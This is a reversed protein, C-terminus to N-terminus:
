KGTKFAPFGTIERGTILTNIDYTGEFTHVAEMDVFSRAVGFDTVIGNGGLLERAMSVVQRGHSTNHAKLLGVQGYTLKNQDFLHSIRLTMLSMSQIIGLMKVLREQVLQYKALSQGFQKREKVYKICSEYASCAIGLAIWSAVIRTLFLSKGPGSGFDKALPLRNEDSLICNKLYIHGNQVMRLAIKNNITEVTMGPTNKEIVFGNILKTDTNRAWIIVVDAFPANGIWRKEGNLTWTGDSNQKAECFLGAADSGANPETLGFAGIKEMSAMKPLYYQKQKESGCYYIPLMSITQLIGFFTAIDASKKAFEFAILGCSVADIGPCSYGKINSGAWNLEKLKPLLHMPFEAKEYYENVIPQIHQEAFQKAKNRIDLQDNSLLQTISYYDLSDVDNSETNSSVQNTQLHDSLVSLRRNIQDEM